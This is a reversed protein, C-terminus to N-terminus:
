DVVDVGIKLSFEKVEKFLKMGEENGEFYKSLVIRGRSKRAKVGNLKKVFEEGIKSDLRHITEILDSISKVIFNRDGTNELYKFFLIWPVYIERINVDAFKRNGGELEIAVLKLSEHATIAQNRWVERLDKKVKASLARIREEEQLLKGRAEVINMEIRSIAENWKSEKEAFKEDVAGEKRAIEKMQLLYAGIPLVLGFFSGLVVFMVSWRNLEGSLKDYAELVAKNQNESFVVKDRQFSDVVKLVTDRTGWALLLVIAILFVSEAACLWRRVDRARWAAIVWSVVVSLIILLIAVFAVCLTDVCLTDTLSIPM